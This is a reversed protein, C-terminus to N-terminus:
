KRLGSSASAMRAASAQYRADPHALFVITNKGFDLTLQILDGLPQSAVGQLEWGYYDGEEIFAEARRRAEPPLDRVRINNYQSM